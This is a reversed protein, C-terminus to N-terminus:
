AADARRLASPDPLAPGRAPIDDARDPDIRWLTGDAAGQVTALM